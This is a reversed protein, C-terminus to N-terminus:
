VCVWVGVCVCVYVGVEEQSKIFCIEPKGHSYLSLFALVGYSQSKYMFCKQKPSM